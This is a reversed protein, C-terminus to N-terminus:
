SDLKMQECLRAIRNLAGICIAETMCWTRQRGHRSLDCQQM